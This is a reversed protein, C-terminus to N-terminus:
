GFLERARHLAAALAEVEEASNYLGFSARATAPVGFREMVPQACHHGARIAIGSDDLFTGLDHPHIGAMTFSLVAAKARATGVIRLGPVESLRATALALLESEWAAVAPLGLATVYDIAAALGAAGEIFPTGAEFRHPPPAYTTREFRVTHVMGGGSQWPPMEALLEARGWLAGIGSPGYVKHGSFAYFDCGLAQVDVIGHPVAQAGDVLVLAGAQHAMAAMERVPNITGLANSVHAFAAIRTRPTLLRAFEDLRVEGRDDLPAVRLIAGREECLRQWPILNSHHELGTILVEDGAGVNQGGWSAAVLNIGETTGRTFVIEDVSSANLFQRVTERARERAETALQSLTHVGREVNAYWGDYCDVITQGVIRPKQTSAANDLYVLPHGRVERALIPFDARVRALDYLPVPPEARRHIAPGPVADGSPSKFGSEDPATELGPMSARAHSTPAM